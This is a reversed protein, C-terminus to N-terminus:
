QACRTLRAAFHTLAPTHLGPVKAEDDWRRLQVADPAYSQEIFAAAEAQSFVGGQHALSEVSVDSLRSWYSQDVACLYRKAKVHLRIPQTVPAEFITSLYEAGAREHPDSELGSHFLHGIDHLLCAVVMDDSAGAAEALTACQLAHALQSVAQGGYMVSGKDEYLRLISDIRKDM